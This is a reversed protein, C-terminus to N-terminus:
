MEVTRAYQNKKKTFLSVAMYVGSTTGPMDRQEAFTIVLPLLSFIKRKKNRLLLGRNPLCCMNSIQINKNMGRAERTDEKRSTLSKGERSERFDCKCVSAFVSRSKESKFAALQTSNIM